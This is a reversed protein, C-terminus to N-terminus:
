STSQVTKMLETESLHPLRARRGVNQVAARSSTAGGGMFLLVGVDGENGVIAIETSEGNKMVYRPSVVSLTSPFSCM